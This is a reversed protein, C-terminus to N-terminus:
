LIYFLQIHAHRQTYQMEIFHLHMYLQHKKWKKVIINKIHM